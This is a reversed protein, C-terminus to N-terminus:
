PRRNALESANAAFRPTTGNVNVRGPGTVVGQLIRKTQMNQVNVTDGEAGADLVKGHLTLVIGPVEYTVTVIDNRSVLEPKMLDARRLVQGARLNQRAALGAAQEPPIAPEGGMEAKPRREITFDGPRLVEGRIIPRNPSAIEITEIIVGTYRLPHRRAAMSGPLDFAIEFRGSRPEINQRVVQPEADVSAEVNLGRAERDLVVSLNKAEGLTGQRAFAAAIRGEIEKLSISRGARTVIVESLGRTSLGLVDHPRLAEVVRAVPVAGTEGLNPARFIAIDAAAGANEILDGVRVIEGTVTVNSKLVPRKDQALAPAILAMIIFLCLTIIQIM